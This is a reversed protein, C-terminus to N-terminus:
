SRQSSRRSITVFAHANGDFQRGVPLVAGSRLEVIRRGRPAQRIAVVHLSNVLLSRHMRVFGVAGLQENVEHLTARLLLTRDSNILEVYNGAARVYEIDYARLTVSGGRTPIDLVRAIQAELVRDIASKAGTRAPKAPQLLAASLWKLGEWACIWPLTSTIAWAVTHRLNIEADIALGHALCFGIALVILTTAVAIFRM